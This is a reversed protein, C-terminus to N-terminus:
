QSGALREGLQAVAGRPQALTAAFEFDEAWNILLRQNNRTPALRLRIQERRPFRDIPLFYCRDLDASYGAFADIEAATYPRKRMGERTRRSSYCRVVLVDDDIAAWKCQARWLRDAFDFILDYRGGEAVPKYVDVGFQTAHSAIGMEAIAGKQDTTLM